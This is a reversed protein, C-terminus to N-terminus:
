IYNVSSYSFITAQKGESKLTELAKTIAADNHEEYGTPPITPIRGKSQAHNSKKMDELMTLMTFFTLGSLRHPTKLSALM